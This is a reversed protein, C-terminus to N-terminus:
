PKGRQLEELRQRAEAHEPQMQLVRRFEVEAESTKRQLALACGLGYHAQVDGASLRVGERFHLVAEELKGSKMLAIALYVHTTADDPKQRLAEDFQVIAERTKGRQDLAVGLNFRAMAFTPKLDVAKQLYGTAEDIKGQTILILGLRHYPEAYKPDAKLAERYQASAESTKGQRDAVLGLYYLSEANRPTATLMARLHEVASDSKEQRFFFAAFYWLPLLDDPRLRLGEKLHLLSEDVAEPSDGHAELLTRALFHHADADRPEVEIARRAARIAEDSKRFRSMLGAEKLLRTSSCSLDLLEQGFPDKILPVVTLTSDLLYRREEEAKEPQGLAEYAELLLQHLPRIKPNQQSLAATYEVVKQWERRRAAVRGLGFLPQLSDDNGAAAAARSYDRAAEDLRDQKYFADATKQLAPLYDPKLELTKRLWPLVEKEQGTEESVLALGYPWRYDGPALRSAIRYAGEAQPYFQNSHYIMGLRGIDDASNAHSRAQADASHLLAKLAENQTRLDPPSPFDEPLPLPIVFSLLAWTGLGAAVALLGIKWILSISRRAPIEARASNM